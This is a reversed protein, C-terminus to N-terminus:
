ASAAASTGTNAAMCSFDMSQLPPGGIFDEPTM